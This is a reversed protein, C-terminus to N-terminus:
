HARADAGRAFAPLLRFVGKREFGSGVFLWALADGPIGLEARAPARHADRLRPHFGELDVGNYIV